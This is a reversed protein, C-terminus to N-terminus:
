VRELILLVWGAGDPHEEAVRYTVGDYVLMSGVGSQEIDSAMCSFMPQAEQVSLTEIYGRRFAGSVAVGDIVAVDTAVHKKVAADMRSAIDRFGM